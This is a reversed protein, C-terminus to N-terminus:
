YAEGNKDFKLPLGPLNINKRFEDINKIVSKLSSYKTAKKIDNLYEKTAEEGKKITKKNQQKSFELTKSKSEVEILFDVDQNKADYRYIETNMTKFTKKLVELVTPTSKSGEKSQAEEGFNVKPSQSGEANIAIIIDAGAEKLAESPIPDVVGGDVLVRKGNKVPVFIGPISISARVAKAVDGKSFVVEERNEIDFATVQLPIKLDEFGSGELESDLLNEIKKGKIFGYRSFTYDFFSKNTEEDLFLNELKKSNPNASYLAGIVSGMSTGAIFDIPIGHEELVKLVGIHSIGKSGGGSLALGVKKRAM